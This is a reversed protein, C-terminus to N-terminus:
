SPMRERRIGIAHPGLWHFRDDWLTYSGVTCLEATRSEEVLFVRPPDPM